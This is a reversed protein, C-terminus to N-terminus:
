YDLKAGDGLKGFSEQVQPAHGNESTKQILAGDDLLPLDMGGLEDACGAQLTAVLQQSTSHCFQSFLDKWRMIRSATSKWTRLLSSEKSSRLMNSALVFATWCNGSVLEALLPRSQELVHGGVVIQRALIVERTKWNRAVLEPTDQQVIFSAGLFNGSRLDM